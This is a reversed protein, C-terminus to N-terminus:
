QGWVLSRSRVKLPSSLPLFPKWFSLFSIIASFFFHILSAMLFGPDSRLDRWMFPSSGMGSDLSFFASCELFGVVRLLAFRASVRLSKLFLYIATPQWSQGSHSIHRRSISQRHCSCM